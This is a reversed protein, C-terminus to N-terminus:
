KANFGGGAPAKQTGPLAAELRRAVGQWFEVNKMHQDLLEARKEPPMTRVIELILELSLKIIELVLIVPM